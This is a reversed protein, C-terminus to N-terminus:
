AQGVRRRRTASGAGILGLVVLALSTPEPVDHGAGDQVLAGASVFSHGLKLDLDLLGLRELLGGDISSLRLANTEASCGEDAGSCDSVQENLVLELGLKVLLDDLLDLKRDTFTHGTLGGLRTNAAPNLNLGLTFLTGIDLNLENSANLGLLGGAGAGLTNVQRTLESGGLTLFVDAFHDLQHSAVQGAGLYQISTTTALLGSRVGVDFTRSISTSNDVNLVPLNLSKQVEVTTTTGAQVQAQLVSGSASVAQRQISASGSLLGTQVGAHGSVTTTTRTSGLLSSETSISTRAQPTGSLRASAATQTVSGLGQGPGSSELRARQGISLNAGAQAVGGNVQVSVPGPLTAQVVGKRGLVGVDVVVGAGEAQASVATHHANGAGTPSASGTQGTSNAFAAPSIALLAAATLTRAPTNM